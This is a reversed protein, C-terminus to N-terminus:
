PQDAPRVGPREHSGEEPVLQMDLTWGATRLEHHGACASRTSSVGAKSATPMRPRRTWMRAMPGGCAADHLQAMGSPWSSGPIWRVVISERLRWVVGVVLVIAALPFRVAPHLGDTEILRAAVFGVCVLRAIEGVTRGFAFPERQELHTPVAYIPPQQSM